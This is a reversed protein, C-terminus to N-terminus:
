AAHVDGFALAGPTTELVDALATIVALDAPVAGHLWRYVVPGAYPERNLKAGVGEGIEKLTLRRDHRREYDRRADRLRRGFARNGSTPNKGNVKSEKMSPGDRYDQPRNM